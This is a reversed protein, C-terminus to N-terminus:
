ASAIASKDRERLPLSLGSHGSFIRQMEHRIARHCGCAQADLADLDALIISSRHQQILGTKQLQGAADSITERYVGLLQALVNHTVKIEISRSRDYALVFWRCLQKKLLHRRSCFSIQAIQASLFQMCELMVNRLEPSDALAELFAATQIRYCFGDRLAVVRYAAAVSSGTFYQAFLSESGIQAVELTMGDSLAYQLSLVTTTPLYVFKLSDGPECLVQGAQLHVLQLRNLFANRQIPHLTDLQALPRNASHRHPLEILRGSQTQKRDLPRLNM